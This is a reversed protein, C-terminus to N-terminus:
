DRQRDDTGSWRCNCALEVYRPLHDGHRGADMASFDRDAETYVSAPNIGGAARKSKMRNLQAAANGSRPLGPQIGHGTRADGMCRSRPLPVHAPVPGEPTQEPAMREQRVHDLGGASAKVLEQNTGALGRWYSQNTM